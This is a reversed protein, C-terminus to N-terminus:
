IQKFYEWYVILNIIAAIIFYAVSVKLPINIHLNLLCEKMYNEPGKSSGRTRNLLQTTIGGESSFFAIGVTAALGVPFSMELFTLELFESIIYNSGLLIVVIAIIYIIKKLM